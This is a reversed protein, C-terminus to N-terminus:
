YKNTVFCFDQNPYYEESNLDQIFGELSYVNGKEEALKIFEKAEECLTEALHWEIIESYCIGLNELDLAHLYYIRYEKEKKSPTLEIPIPPIFSYEWWEEGDGNAEEKRESWTDDLYWIIGYLYRRGWSKQYEFNLNELFQLFESHTFNIPLIYRRSIDDKRDYFVSACKINFETIGHQKFHKLLEDKANAETNLM